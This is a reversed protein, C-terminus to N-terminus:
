RLSFTSSEQYGLVTFRVDSRLSTVKGSAKDITVQETWMDGSPASVSTTAVWASGADTVSVGGSLDEALAGSTARCVLAPNGAPVFAGPCTMTVMGTATVRTRPGASLESGSSCYTSSVATTGAGLTLTSCGGDAVTVAAGVTAPVAAPKAWFGSPISGSGGSNYIGAPMSPTAVGGGGGGGGDGGTSGSTGSTSDTPTYPIFNRSTGSRYPPSYKSSGSGPTGPAIPAIGYNWLSNPDGPNSPDGPAVDSTLGDTVRHVADSDFAYEAPKDESASGGLFIVGLVVLAGVIAAAVGGAIALNRPKVDRLRAKLGKPALPSVTATVGGTSSTPPKPPQPPQPVPPRPPTPAENTFMPPRPPQPPRPSHPDAGAGLAGAPAEAVAITPGGAAPAKVDAPTPAVGDKGMKGGSRTEGM